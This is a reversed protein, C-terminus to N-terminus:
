FENHEDVNDITLDIWGSGMVLKDEVNINEYGEYGLDMGSEITEGMLAKYAVSIMAYGLGQPSPYCVFKVYGDRIADNVISPASMGVVMIKDALGAEEVALGMSPTGPTDLSFVGVLDPYAAMLEKMKNYYGEQTASAPAIIEDNVLEMNPYKEKQWEVAAEARIMQGQNGLSSVCITYQGEEGCLEALKDMYHRGFDENIMEEVDYDINTMNQGEHAIVIIGAERAKQLIPECAETDTPCITIADPQQAIADQLIQVQAAADNETPGMQHVTVNPYEEMFIEEGEHMGNYWADGAVMVISIITFEDDGTAAPEETTEEATEETTEETTSDTVSDDAAPEATCAFLCFAMVAVLVLVLLKKM